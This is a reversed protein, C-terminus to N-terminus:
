FSGDGNGLLIGANDSYENCVALDMVGDHDMDAISLDRPADGAYHNTFVTFGGAGDGLLISVTDSYFNVVALDMNADGNLLGAEIGVPGNGTYLNTSLAFTGDGNGLLISVGSGHDATALDLHADGNFNTMVLAYPNTGVSVTGAAVFSGDTEDTVSGLSTATAFSGNDRSELLFGSPSSIAFSRLHDAAMPNGGRDLLGTTATFRVNGTQLPGDAILISAELGTTYTPALTYIEDDATDLLGDAGASRLEYHAPNNVSDADMEESFTINFRDIVAESGSGEAPLTLGTIFPTVADQLSIDLLYQHELGAQALADRVRVHYVGSTTTTYQFNTPYSAPDSLDSPLIQSNGFLTLDNGFTARDNATGDEFNWYGALGSENGALSTGMTSQIESPSRVTDWIRLEDIEGLFAQGTAFGGGLSDQDQGVVFAGNQTINYATRWNGNSHVLEGNKYFLSTGTISDWTWAIHNWRDNNAGVGTAYSSGGVHPDFNRYDFLLVENDQGSRAYSFPSGDKSTDATKMWFEATFATTPFNTIPNCIGYDAATGGLRLVLNSTFAILGGDADFMGIEPLFPSTSPQSISVNVVTGSTLNGLSYYDGATDATGICGALSAKLMGGGLPAFTLLNASGIGNNSESDMQMTAPVKSVRIRYENWYGYNYYVMMTYRGTSPLTIPTSQGYGTSVAAYNGLNAGEPSVLQYRLGSSGPNGPVDIAMVVKDGAEGSFAWHDYDSSSTINGRGFASRLGGGAPDEPMTIRSNALYTYIQDNYSNAVALDELGDGNFDQAAISHPYYNVTHQHTSFAFSGDGQNIFFNLRHSDYSALALDKFGDSDIDILGLDVPGNCGAYNAAAGFTGDGDGALVSVNDSYYNGVVLDQTGDNDLDAVSLCRPGDGAPYNVAAALTGDGNNLFVSVTDSSINAVAVDLHNDGNLFALSVEVPNNGTSYSASAGFNGNGDGYLVHVLNADYHVSVLDIDEDGNIDGVKVDYPRNPTAYTVPAAFSGGAQGLFVSINHSYENAVALDPYSDGNFFGLEMQRPNTGSALNTVTSFSGDGNGRLVTLTGANFNCTILDAILDGDLDASLVDTPNDGVGFIQGASLTGDVATAQAGLPTAGASSGNSRNEHIYLDINELRFERIYPAAMPNGVRDRLSTNATFRYNRDPQLPGDTISFSASLTNASYSPSLAYVEDDGNGFVEDGGDSVLMWSAPATVSSVDMYESFDVSFRDIIVTNTSGELPLSDTTIGPAGTDLVSLDLVYQALVGTNPSSVKLYHTTNTTIDFAFLPTNTALLVGGGAAQVELNITGSNLQSGAPFRLNVSMANGSNLHGLNLYDDNWLLAGASADKLSSGDVTWVVSNAQSQNNNDETELRRNGRGIDLRLKYGVPPQVEYYAHVLLYYTGPTTITYNQIRSAGTWNRQHILQSGSTNLLKLNPLTGDRDMLIWATIVDGAEADFTWYDYDGLASFSGLATATLFGGSAPTELLPNLSDATGLSGNDLDEVTRNASEVIAFANTFLAVQAGLSDVLIATTTFRYSGPQLPVNNGIGITVTKGSSFSPSLTYIADDGTGFLGDLGTGRLDYSAADVAAASLARSATVTFWDIVASADGSPLSTGTVTTASLEEVLINDLGWSEDSIGSLGTGYFSVRTTNSVATFIVEVNRYISDNYSSFGYNAPGLDPPDPYTQGSLNYQFTHHFINSGDLDIYFHDNDWSDIIYLDFFVSYDTGPVLNSVSLTQVNNNFRGSFTTFPDPVSSELTALSWEPGIGSEFDETFVVEGTALGVPVLLFLYAALRLRASSCVHVNM